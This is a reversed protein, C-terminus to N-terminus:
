GVLIAYTCIIWASSGILGFIVDGIRGKSQSAIAIVYVPLLCVAYRGEARILVGSTLVIGIIFAPAGILGALGTFLSLSAIDNGKQTRLASVILAGILLPFVLFRMLSVYQNFFRASDFGIGPPFWTLLIEPNLLHKLPPIGNFKMTITQPVIDASITARLSQLFIWAGSTLAGASFM